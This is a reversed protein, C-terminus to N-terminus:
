VNQVERRLGGARRQDEAVRAAAVGSFDEPISVVFASGEGVVSQVTITGGLLEALRLSLSLGLGTGKARSEGSGVQTFEEFIRAQDEPAIGVGTDIVAFRVVGDGAQEAHLRVHGRETFKVANSLLNRLIQAVKGEDTFLTIPAGGEEFLLEIPRQVVLPRFVGRLGGFLEAVTFRVPNVDTKGAEIKALDLLDNVLELLSIASRNILHVPKLQEPPMPGQTGDILLRSVMVVSNLPTRLEHAMNSLFQSKLESARKLAQAKEDLESYLALVGRNTEELERNLREVETQRQQLVELTRMLEQNQQRMEELPNQPGRQVLADVIAAVVKDTVPGATRPLRQRLTVVTGRNRTSAIEFEDVLRKAGIIGTGRGAPTIRRGDLVAGVDDIGPGQDRVTIVLQDPSGSQVAFAVAGGGAYAFANRAIESVATSLRTQSQADCGLLGAIQRARQRTLVVDHEGRIEVSLLQRSM